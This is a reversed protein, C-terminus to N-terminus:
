DNEEPLRKRSLNKQPTQSGKLSSNRRLGQRCPEQPVKTSGDLDQPPPKLNSRFNLYWDTHTPKRYVTTNVQKGNRKVLVDLFPIENNTETEKTFEISPHQHNIHNHFRELAEDGHPWLVFTDDVYRLWIKPKLECTSLAQQELSEMFLNPHSRLARPQEKRKNSSSTESQFYTSKLCLATLHCIDAAPISIRDELNDNSHLLSSLTEMADDVNIKTFLKRTM